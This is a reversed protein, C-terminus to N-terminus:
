LWVTDGALYPVKVFTVTAERDTDNRLDHVHTRAIAVSDGAELVHEVGEVTLVVTGSTVVVIEESRPHHHAAFSGGPALTNAGLAFDPCTCLVPADALAVPRDLQLEVERM